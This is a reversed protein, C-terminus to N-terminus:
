TRAGALGYSGVRRMARAVEDPAQVPNTFTVYQRADVTTVAGGVASGGHVGALMSGKLASASVGGVSPMDATLGTMNLAQGLMTSNLTKLGDQASAALAKGMTSSLGQLTDVFGVGVGLAMNKGVRDRMVTSPSRIGLLHMVALLATSIAATLAVNIKYGHDRIGQVVGAVTNTGITYGQSTAFGRASAIAEAVKANLTTKVKNNKRISGAAGDIINDGIEDAGGVATEIDSSIVGMEAKVTDRAAIAKDKISTLRNGVDGTRSRTVGSMKEPADVEEIAAQATGADTTLGSIEGKTKNIDGAIGGILTQLAVIGNEGNLMTDLLAQQSEIGLNIEPISKGTLENYMAIFEDYGGDGFDDLNIGLASLDGGAEQYALALAKVNAIADDSYWDMPTDSLAEMKAQLETLVGLQKEQAALAEQEAKYSATAAALEQKAQIKQQYLGKLYDRYALAEAERAYAEILSRITSLEESFLGDKGVKGALGEYLGVLATTADKANQTDEATPFDLKSYAELQDLLLMAEDETAATTALSSSLTDKLTQLATTVGEFRSKMGMMKESVYDGIAETNDRVGFLLSALVRGIGALLLPAARVIGTLIAKTIKMGADILKPLNDVLRAIADVLADVIAPIMDPLEDALADVLEVFLVLLADLLVPASQAIGVAAAKLSEALGKAIMPANKKLGAVLSKVLGVAMNIVQPAAEAGRGVINGLVDGFARVLGKTGGSRLASTLQEVYGLAAPIAEEKAVDSLAEFAEGGLAMINDKLTAVMGAATKSQENMANFFLGGSSTAIKMAQDVMDASIVGEVGIQALMKAAPSASEGLKQVEAQASKMMAKFQASTKEGSMVAKLDGMSAGTQKAIVTLPNFGQNIMQLLDQGMLKGTSAVQGYVLALGRLKESNGMAIDGLQRMAESTKGEAVGFGLITKTADALDTMEFPTEAAYEKLEQVKRQAAETSGLLISFSTAYQEMSSNYALGQKALAGLGVAVAGIAWGMTKAAGGVTTSLRSLGRKLGTEDLSTDFVVQADSM